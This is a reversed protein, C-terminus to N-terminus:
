CKGARSDKTTVAGELRHLQELTNLVQQVRGENWPPPWAANSLDELLLIPMEWDDDWGLFRPLFPARLASYVRHEARLQQATYADAGVKVFCSSGDEFGTVWREARTYGREVRRWSVSRKHLLAEVRGQLDPFPYPAEMARNYRPLCQAHGDCRYLNRRVVNM